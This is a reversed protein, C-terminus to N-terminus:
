PSPTPTIWPPNWWIATRPPTGRGDWLIRNTIAQTGGTYWFRKGNAPDRIEFSWREFPLLSAAGLAITLEDDVGDNDPSFYEPSTDVSLVPASASAVFPGTATDVQNGKVYVLSLTARFTGEMNTGDAGKGDWDLYESVAGTGSWTKVAQTSARAGRSAADAVPVVAVRWSEIGDPPTVTLTIRQVKANARPSLPSFAESRATAFARVPRTDVTIHPVRATTRNGASDQATMELRYVGDPVVNGNDDTGDWSKLDAPADRWTFSRVPTGGSAGPTITADWRAETSTTVALPLTKKTNTSEKDPSFVLYPAAVQAVPFVTDLTIPPTVTRTESGNAARVV